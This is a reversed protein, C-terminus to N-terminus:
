RKGRSFRNGARYKNEVGPSALEGLRHRREHVRTSVPRAFADSLDAGAARLRWLRLPLRVVIVASLRASKM